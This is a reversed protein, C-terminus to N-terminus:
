RTLAELENDFRERIAETAKQRAKRAARATFRNPMLWSTGRILARALMANPQGRPWRKTKVANYGDFGIKTQLVGDREWFHAVGLGDHLGRRQASSLETLGSIEEQVAEALVNAGSYLAKGCLRPAESGIRELQREYEAIGPFKITAM